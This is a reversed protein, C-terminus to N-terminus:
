PIFASFPIKVQDWRGEGKDMAMHRAMDASSVVIPSAPSRSLPWLHFYYTGQTTAVEWEHRTVFFYAERLPLTSAKVEIKLPESLDAQIVSLIDFGSFSSEIAQWKPERGTRNYEFDWSLREARRGVKLNADARRSRISLALDDWWGVLEDTWDSLLGSEEFTQLADPPMFRIAEARGYQIRKTWPPDLRLVVDRLQKRLRAEAREPFLIENGTGTLRLMGDTGLSVWACEQTVSLVASASAVEFTQFANEFEAVRLGGESVLELFRQASYLVGVSFTM